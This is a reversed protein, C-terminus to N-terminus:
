LPQRRVTGSCCCLLFAVVCRKVHEVVGGAPVPAAVQYEPHGMQGLYERIRVCKAGSAYLLGTREGAMDALVKKGGHAGVWSVQFREDFPTEAVEVPM